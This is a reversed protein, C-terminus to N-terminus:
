NCLLRIEHLPYPIDIAYDLYRILVLATTQVILAIGLRWALLPLSGESAPNWFETLFLCRCYGSGDVLKGFSCGSICSSRACAVQLAKWGSEEGGVPMLCKPVTRSGYSSFMASVTLKNVPDRLWRYLECCRRHLHGRVQRSSYLHDPEM